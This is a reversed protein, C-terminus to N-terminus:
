HLPEVGETPTSMCHHSGGHVCTRMICSKHLVAWANEIMDFIVHVYDYMEWYVYCECVCGRMMDRGM